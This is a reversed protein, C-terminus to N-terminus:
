CNHTELGPGIVVHRLGEMEVLEECAHACPQPACPGFLSVNQGGASEPEIELRPSRGDALPRHLEGSALEGQELGEEAVHSLHQTTLLEKRVNPAVREVWRGVKHVHVDVGQAVLEAGLDNLSDTADAIPNAALWAVGGRALCM